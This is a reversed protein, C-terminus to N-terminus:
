MCKDKSRLCKPFYIRSGAHSDAHLLARTIASAESLRVLRHISGTQELIYVPQQSQEDYPLCDSSSIQLCFMEWQPDLNVERIKEMMEESKAASCDKRNEWDPLDRNLIRGALRSLVPDQAQRCLSALTMMWADDLQLFDPNSIRTSVLPAFLLKWPASEANRNQEDQHFIMRGREILLQWLKEYGAADPHLYVQWYAQYRAMIYDEVAHMGSETVCLCDNEVRMTRLIRQLDYHGYTTGTQYADRLLYDMRDCDLQSSILSSLLPRAQHALIAAVREAMHPSANELLPFLHGDPDCILSRTRQEHDESCVREFFHSFPGHGIDHLLAACLLDMKEEESIASKVSEVESCIRRCIEYTGLSHAFRSHDATHYIQMVGGLQHIRHLRQFEPTQILQWILLHEVHIAGHVPDRFIRSESLRQAANM